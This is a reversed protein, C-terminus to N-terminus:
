LGAWRNPAALPAHHQAALAWALKLKRRSMGAGLQKRVLERTVIQKAKIMELIARAGNVVQDDKLPQKVQEELFTMSSQFSNTPVCVPLSLFGGYQFQLDERSRPKGDEGPLTSSGVSGIRLDIHENSLERPDAWVILEKSAEIFSSNAATVGIKSSAECIDWVTTALHPKLGQSMDAIIGQAQYDQLRRFVEATAEALPVYGEEFFM